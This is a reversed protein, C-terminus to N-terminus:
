GRMPLGSGASTGIVDLTSSIFLSIKMNSVETQKVIAARLVQEASMGPARAGFKEVGRSLDQWAMESIIPIEDLIASIRQLEEARPHEMCPILIPMQDLQRERM